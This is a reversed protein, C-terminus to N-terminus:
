KNDCSLSQHCKSNCLKGDKTCKCSHDNRCGSKCNCRVYGQGTGISEKRAVERLTIESTSVDGLQLLPANTPIFQNRCYPQKLIGHKTGITYCGITQNITIIGKINRFIEGRGRDVDPIPVLVNDGVEAPKFKKVTEDIMKKAQQTLNEKCQERKRKTEYSRFCLICVSKSSSELIVVKAKHYYNNCIYCKDDGIYTEECISCNRQVRM